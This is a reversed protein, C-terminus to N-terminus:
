FTGCTRQVLLDSPVWEKLLWALLNHSPYPTTDWSRGLRRMAHRVYASATPCSWSPRSIKSMSSVVFYTTLHEVHVHSPKLEYSLSESWTKLFAKSAAYTQLLPTPVVGGAFSGMNVILGRKSFLFTHTLIHKLLLLACAFLDLLFLMLLTLNM